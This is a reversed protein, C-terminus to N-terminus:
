RRVSRAIELAKDRGAALELRLVLGDQEWILTPGALLARDERVEGQPTVYLYAHAGGSIFAGRRGHVVVAEVGTGIHVLKRLYAGEIGGRSETLVLGADIGDLRPLGPRPAYVLSIRGDAVRVREPPGLAAPLAAAFGAERQAQALTVLRGLDTELEARAAPPPAPVRRVTVNRLGLWELVDERAAPFAVAGAAPLLVLAALLAALLRRPRLGAPARRRLGGSRTRDRRAALEAMVARELDPTPPWAVDAALARLRNELEPM